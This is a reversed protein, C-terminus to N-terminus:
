LAFAQEWRLLITFNDCTSFSPSNLNLRSYKVLLVNLTTKFWFDGATAILFYIFLAAKGLTLASLDEKSPPM